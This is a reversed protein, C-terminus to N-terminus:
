PQRGRRAPAPLVVEGKVSAQLKDILEKSAADDVNRTKLAISLDEVFADWQAESISMGEHADKMSKGAYACEGGAVVCLEDILRDRLQKAREKSKKARDFLKSIRRDALVNGILEDVVGEIAEREGLRQYLSPAAPPPEPPPPAPPGEAAAPPPAAPKPSSCAGCCLGAAVFLVVGARPVTM